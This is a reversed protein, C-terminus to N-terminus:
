EDYKRVVVAQNGQLRDMRELHARRESKQVVRYVTATVGLGIVMAAIPWSEAVIKLAEM